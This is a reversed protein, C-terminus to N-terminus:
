ANHRITRRVAYGAAGLGVLLLLGTETLQFRWYRDASHVYDVKRYGANAFCDRSSGVVDACVGNTRFETTDIERGDPGTYTTEVSIEDRAIGTLDGIESVVREPAAYYERAFGNLLVVFGLLVALAMAMAPLMKRTFAGAAAGILFGAACWAMPVIGSAGFLSGSSFRQGLSTGQYVDVWTSTIAGIALGVVAALVSLTSLKTTLWRLRSVSQTWAMRQTGLEFERSIVPAGWFMGILAPVLGVYGIVQRTQLVRNTVDEPVSPWPGQFTPNVLADAVVRGNALGDVLLFIGYAVVLGITVLIRVRHQRWTLWIM